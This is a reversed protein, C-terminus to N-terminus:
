SSASFFGADSDASKERSGSATSAARAPLRSLGVISYVRSAAGCKKPHPAAKKDRLPYEEPFCKYVKHLNIGKPTQM